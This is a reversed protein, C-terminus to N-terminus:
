KDKFTYRMFTVNFPLHPFTKTGGEKFGLTNYFNKLGTDAAIIGVDMNAAGVERAQNLAHRVLRTGYGKGRQAKLVALREMYCTAPSAKEVGVCGISIEDAKLIFYRVGRELDGQVWERTYNSPHKPCNEPTLDFRRAVDTFSDRILRTLADVEESTAEVIPQKTSWAM